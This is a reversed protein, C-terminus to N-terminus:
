TPLIHRRRKYYINEKVEASTGAQSFIGSCAEFDGDRRHTQFTNRNDTCTEGNANKKKLVIMHSPRRRTQLTGWIGRNRKPLTRRRGRFRAPQRRVDSGCPLYLSFVNICGRKKHLTRRGDDLSRWWIQDRSTPFIDRVNELVKPICSLKTPSLKRSLTDAM